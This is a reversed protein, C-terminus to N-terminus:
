SSPAFVKIKVDLLVPADLETLTASAPVLVFMNAANPPAPVLVGPVAATIPVSVSKPVLSPKLAPVGSNPASAITPVSVSKPVLSPKLAPM